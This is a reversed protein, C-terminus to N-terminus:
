AIPSPTSPAGVSSRWPAAACANSGQRPPPGNTPAPRPRATVVTTTPTASGYNRTPQAPIDWTPRRTHRFTPLLTYVYLCGACSFRSLFTYAWPSPGAHTIDPRHGSRATLRSDAPAAMRANRSDRSQDSASRAAAVPTLMM